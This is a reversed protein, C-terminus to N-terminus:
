QGSIALHYNVAEPGPDIVELSIHVPTQSPMSNIGALEGGLYEQPRFVRHAIAGGNINSFVLTLQPFPQTFDATNILISDIALANDAKPHSRVVLNYSKIQKIDYHPPLQCGLIPCLQQYVARYPELRGYREIQFWGIQVILGLAALLSLGGWLLRTPWPSQQDHWEMEVPADGIGSLIDDSDNHESRETAIDSELDSLLNEDLIEENLPPTNETSETAPNIAPPEDIYPEEEDGLLEEAWSDDTAEEERPAKVEIKRDFLAGHTKPTSDGILFEDSLQGLSDGMDDSILEDDENIEAAPPNSPEEDAAPDDLQDINFSSDDAQPALEEEDGYDINVALDDAEDRNEEIDTSNQELTINEETAADAASEESSILHDLAKFVQLCSGCRVAGKASALQADTVHFSTNCHPCCTVQDAM